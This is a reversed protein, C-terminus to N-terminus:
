TALTAEVAGGARELVELQRLLNFCNPARRTETSQCTIGTALRWWSDTLLIGISTVPITKCNKYRPGLSNSFM